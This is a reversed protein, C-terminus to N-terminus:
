APFLKWRHRLVLLCAAHPWVAVYLGVAVAGVLLPFHPYQDLAALCLFFVAGNLYWGSAPQERRRHALVACALAWPIWFLIYIVQDSHMADLFLGAYLSAVFLYCAALRNEFLLGGPVFM